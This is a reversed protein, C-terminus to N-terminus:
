VDARRRAQSSNTAQIDKRIARFTALLQDPPDGKVVFADAGAALVEDHDAPSSGLVMFRVRKSGRGAKAIIKAPARGPLDWDVIVLDPQSSKILASLGDGESAMGAVIVSPEESLSLELSIRLTADKTALLIKM